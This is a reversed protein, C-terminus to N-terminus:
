ESPQRMIHDFEAYVYESKCDSTCFWGGFKSWQRDVAEDEVVCQRECWGCNITQMDKNMNM